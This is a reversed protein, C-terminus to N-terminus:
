LTWRFALGLQTASTGRAIGVDNGFYALAFLQWMGRASRQQRVGAHVIARRERIVNDHQWMWSAAVSVFPHAGGAARRADWVIEGLAEIATSDYNSQPCFSPATTCSLAYLRTGATVTVAGPGTVATATARVALDNVTLWGTPGFEPATSHDSEHEVALSMALTRLSPMAAVVVPRVWEAEIGLRGRWNNNPILDDTDNHLEIFVPLYLQFGYAARDGYLPITAGVVGRLNDRWALEARPTEPSASLDRADARAAPDARASHAVAAVTAGAALLAAVHSRM